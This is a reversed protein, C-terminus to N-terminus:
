ELTDADLHSVLTRVVAESSESTDLSIVSDASLEDPPQFSDRQAAYIEWRGDAPDGGQAARADLRRRTEEEPLECLVFLLPVGGARSLTEFRARHQARIFSADIVISRGQELAEAALRALEDYTRETMEPTYIEANWDVFHREEPPLGQMQKRVVDSSIYTHGRERALGQALTSKGTGMLGGILVINPGIMTRAYQEALRFYGEARGRVEAAEQDSLGPQDLRFGEVKGRVYARYCQYFPLLEPMGPDDAQELYGDVFARALDPHGRAELDMAMFGVDWAVDGYRFRDNFDICDLVSIRGNAEICIQQAHLDGHTDRVFGNRSRSHFLTERQEMFRRAYASVTDYTEQSITRGIYAETQEFNEEVNFRVGELDGAAAIEDSTQAHAHINAIIRGLEGMMEPTVEGRELRADLMMDEPLRVMQVLYEVAAPNEEAVIRYGGRGNPIVAHVERYIDPAARQNLFLEQYCFHRRKQLTTFDLFGYDVAKKMKYARNGALFVVASHTERVEVTDVGDRPPYTAPSSLADIVPRQAEYPDTTVPCLLNLGARHPPRGKEM